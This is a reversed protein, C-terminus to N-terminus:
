KIFYDRLCLVEAPCDKYDHKWCVVLIERLDVNKLSHSDDNEHTKFSSSKYEFEIYRKKFKNNARPFMAEADPYKRTSFSLIKIKNELAYLSFLYIVGNENNPEYSMLDNTFQNGYDFHTFESITTISNSDKEVNEFILNEISNENKDNIDIIEKDSLVIKNEYFEIWITILSNIKFITKLFGEIAIRYSLGNYITLKSGESSSLRNGKNDEYHIYKNVNTECWKKLIPKNDLEKKTFTIRGDKIISKTIEKKAIFIKM